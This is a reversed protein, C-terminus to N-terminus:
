VIKDFLEFNINVPLGGCRKNYMYLLGLAKNAQSALTKRAVSWNLKPTFSLGLYKYMSVVEIEKRKFYWKEINKVIGGGRFVVLKSKTM